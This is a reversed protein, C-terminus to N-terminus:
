LSTRRIGRLLAKLDELDKKSTRARTYLDVVFAIDQLFFYTQHMMKKDDLTQPCRYVNLGASLMESGKEVPVAQAGACAFSSLDQTKNADLVNYFAFLQIRRARAVSVDECSESDLLAVFGHNSGPPQTTCLVMPRPLKTVFGYDVNAYESSYEAALVQLPVLLSSAFLAQLLRISMSM